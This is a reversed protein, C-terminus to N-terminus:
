VQKDNLFADFSLEQGAGSASPAGSAGPRLPTKGQGNGALLLGPGGPPAAVPAAPPVAVGPAATAEEDFIETLLTINQDCIGLVLRRDEYRVVGVWHKPGLALRNELRLAPSSGGLMRLGGKRRILWLLAWLVALVFALMGLAQLYGSWTLSINPIASQAATEQGAQGSPPLVTQAHAPLAAAFACVAGFSAAARAALPRAPINLRM